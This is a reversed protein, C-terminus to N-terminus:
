NKCEFSTMCKSRLGLFITSLPSYISSAKELLKYLFVSISKSSKRRSFFLLRMSLPANSDRFTKSIL